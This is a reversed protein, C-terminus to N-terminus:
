EGAEDIIKRVERVLSSKLAKADKALENYTTLSKRKVAKIFINIQIDFPLQSADATTAGVDSLMQQHIESVEPVSEEIVAFISQLSKQDGIEYSKEILADLDGDAIPSQNTREYMKRFNERDIQPKPKALQRMESVLYNCHLLESNAKTFKKQFQELAPQLKPSYLDIFMELKDFASLRVVSRQGDDESILNDIQDHFQDLLEDLAQYAKQLADHVWKKVEWTLSRKDKLRALINSENFIIFRAALFGLIGLIATPAIALALTQLFLHELGM